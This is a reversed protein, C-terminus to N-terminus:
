INEKCMMIEDDFKGKRKLANKFRGYEIFGKKKYMNIAVTNEGFVSLSIYKIKKLKVKAENIVEDMLLSGLGHGRYKKAISLGFGGVHERPGREQEISSIGILEDKYFIFKAVAKKDSVAKTIKKLWKREFEVKIEEGQFIVYTKEKSLKNVYNLAQKLDSLKPNRITIYEKKM